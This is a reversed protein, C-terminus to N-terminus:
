KQQVSFMKATCYQSKPMVISFHFWCADLQALIRYMKHPGRQNRRSQLLTPSWIPTVEEVPVQRADTYDPSDLKSHWCM